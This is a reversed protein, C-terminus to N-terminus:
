YSNLVADLAADREYVDARFQLLGDQDVWATMYSFYVPIPRDLSVRTMVAEEWIEDLRERPWDGSEDLLYLAMDVPDALRVCGSSFAREARSFLERHPTDHLYVSHENPLMFKVRGM